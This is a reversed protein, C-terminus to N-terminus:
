RHTMRLFREETIGRLVPLGSAFRALDEVVMAGLQAKWYSSFAGIHPLCIVNPLRLLPNEAALPEQHYVDLAAHIRGSSLEQWLAEEEVLAGRATNVLLAGDPLLQLKERTIMGRTAPTLTDHLSVIRSECLLEELSCLTVGLQRAEEESCYPSFLRINTHFGRLLQIVERAVEGIGVIGVPQGYLGNVTGGNGGWIGSRLQDRLSCINWSGALMLALTLEATSKSLAMNANVVTIRKRFVLPDVYPILTGAAHGIFQLKHAGAVIEATLKPSGWSTLVADYSGIDQLLQEAEYPEGATVWDVDSVKHLRSVVEDSFFLERLEKKWITVLTKM